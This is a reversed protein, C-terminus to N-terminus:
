PQLGLLSTAHTTSCIHPTLGFFATMGSIYRKPPIHLFGRSPVDLRKGKKGILSQNYAEDAAASTRINVIKKAITVFNAMKM